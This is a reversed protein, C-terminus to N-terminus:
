VNFKKVNERKRDNKDIEVFEFKDVENYWGVPM